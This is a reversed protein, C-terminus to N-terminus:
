IDILDDLKALNKFNKAPIVRALFSLRGLVFDRRPPSLLYALSTSTVPLVFILLTLINCHRERVTILAEKSFIRASAYIRHSFFFM